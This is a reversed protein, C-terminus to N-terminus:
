SPTLTWDPWCERRRTDRFSLELRTLSMRLIILLAFINQPSFCRAKARQPLSSFPSRDELWCALLALRHGPRALPYRALVLAFGEREAFSGRPVM